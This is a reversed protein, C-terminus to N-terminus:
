GCIRWFVRIKKDFGAPAVALIGTGKVDIVDM